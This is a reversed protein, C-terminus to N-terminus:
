SHKAKPRARKRAARYATIMGKLKKPWSLAHVASITGSFLDEDGSQQEDFHPHGSNRVSVAKVRTFELLGEIGRTVGFGSRKRGSFPFRPDATPVIVDNVIVFGANLRDSLRKAQAPPGFISAGLAYSCADYHSILDEDTSFSRIALLPAFVDTQWLESSLDGDEFIHPSASHDPAIFGSLRNAGCERSTRAIRRLNLSSSASLPILLDQVRELARTRLERAVSAHAFVRHPRMCTQSANLRLAFRLANAALDLDAGPLVVMADCGSLECTVPTITESATKLVDRGARESGTLVVKDVGSLIATHGCEPDEDTITLLAADLGAGLLLERFRHAVLSSGPAPKMVVANGAVLAQLAQVGALFLPYNAPPIILVIGFPERRLEVDVGALWFPRHKSKLRRPRLWGPANREAFKCADLLPLIESSLIEAISSHVRVCQVVGALARPNEGVAHRFRKLVAIRAEIPAEAWQKQVLRISGLLAPLADRSQPSCEMAAPITNM